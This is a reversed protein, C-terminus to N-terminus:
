GRLHDSLSLLLDGTPRQWIPRAMALWNEVGNEPNDWLASYTTHWYSNGGNGAATAQRLHKLRGDMNTLGLVLPHAM